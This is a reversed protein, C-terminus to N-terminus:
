NLIGNKILEKDKTGTSNCRDKGPHYIIVLPKNADIRQNIQKELISDITPRISIKGKNKREILKIQNISDGPVMFLGKRDRIRIFKSKTVQENNEDFFKFGKKNPNPSACALLLFTIFFIFLFKNLRNYSIFHTIIKKILWYKKIFM